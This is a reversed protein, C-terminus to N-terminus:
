MLKAQSTSTNAWREGLKVFVLALLLGRSQPLCDAKPFNGESQIKPGELEKRRAGKYRVKHRSQIM